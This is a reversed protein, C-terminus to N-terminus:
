ILILGTFSILLPKLGQEWQAKLGPARQASPIHRAVRWTTEGGFADHDDHRLGFAAAFNGMTLQEQLYVANNTAKKELSGDDYKEDETEMGAVLTNSGNIFFTHQMDFKRITGKYNYDSGAKYDYEREVNTYSSGMTMQWRNEFFHFTGSLRSTTEDTEQTDLSDTPVYGGKLVDYSSGDM